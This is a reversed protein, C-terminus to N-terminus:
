EVLMDNDKKSIIIEEKAEMELIVAVIRQQAELVESLRVKGLMDMEQQVIEKARKSMNSLFHTKVSEATSKLALAVDKNSLKAVIKQLIINDIDTIDEFVFMKKKIEEAMEPNYEEIEKFIRVESKRDISSLIDSVIKLGAEEDRRNESGVVNNLKSKLKDEIQNIIEPSIKSMKAIRKVIETQREEELGGLIKSAQESEMYSIILAITQNREVKILNILESADVQQLFKFPKKYNLKSMKNIIQVSRQAGLAETLVDKAYQIGGGSIYGEALCMEYFENLVENRTESPISKFNAIQYTIKEVDTDNLKKLVTAASKKDISLILAAAKEHGSLSVDM